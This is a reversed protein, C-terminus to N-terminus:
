LLSRWLVSPSSALLEDSDGANEQSDVVLIAVEPNCEGPVLGLDQRIELAMSDDRGQFRISYFQCIM